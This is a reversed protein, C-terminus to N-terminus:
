EVTLTVSAALSVTRGDGCDPPMSFVARTGLIWRGPPLHLDPDSFYQRYFEANPDDASYGGAKGFSVVMPADARIQYPKCDSTGGGGLARTGGIETLDFFLPGSGSGFFSTGDGPGIYRLVARVLITEEADWHSRPSGVTLSWDADRDADSVQWPSQSPVAACGTVGAVVLALAALRNVSSVIDQSM